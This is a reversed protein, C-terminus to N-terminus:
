MGCEQVGGSIIAFKRYAPLLVVLQFSVFLAAIDIATPAARRLIHVIGSIKTRFMHSCYIVMNQDRWCKVPFAPRLGM